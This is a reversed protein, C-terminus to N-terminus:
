DKVRKMAKDYIEKEKNQTLHTYIETTKIDEHGLLTKVQVLNAGNNLLATAFSHRLTHPSIKKDIGADEAYKKLRLFVYQRSM